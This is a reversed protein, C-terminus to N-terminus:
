MAVDFAGFMSEYRVFVNVTGTGWLYSISAQTGFTTANMAISPTAPLVSTNSTGAVEGVGGVAAAM